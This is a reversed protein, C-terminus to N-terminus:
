SGAGDGDAGQVRLQLRHDPIIVTRNPPGSEVGTVNGVKLLQGTGIQGDIGGHHRVADEEGGRQLSGVGVEVGHVGSGEFHGPRAAGVRGIHVHGVAGAAAVAKCDVVVHDYHDIHFGAFVCASPGPGLSQGGVKHADGIVAGLIVLIKAAHHVEEEEQIGVSIDIQFGAEDGILCGAIEVAGIVTIQLIDACRHITRGM